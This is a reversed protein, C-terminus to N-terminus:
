RRSLSTTPTATRARKTGSTAWTWLSRNRLAAPTGQLVPDAGKLRRTIPQSSGVLSASYLGVKEGSPGEPNDTNEVLIAIVNDKGAMVSGAPFTFTTTSPGAAGASGLFAGEQCRGSRGNKARRVEGVPRRGTAAPSREVAVKGTADPDATGAPDKSASEDAVVELGCSVESSAFRNM